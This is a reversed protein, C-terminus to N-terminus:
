QNSEVTVPDELLWVGRSIASPETVTHISDNRIQLLLRRNSTVRRTNLSGPPSTSSVVSDMLGHGAETGDVRLLRYSVGNRFVATGDPLESPLVLSSDAEVVVSAVPEGGASILQVTRHETSTNMFVIGTRICSSLLLCVCLSLILRSAKRLRECLRSKAVLQLRLVADM